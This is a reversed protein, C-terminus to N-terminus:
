RRAAGTSPRVRSGRRGARAIFDLPGRPGSVFGDANLDGKPTDVHAIGFYCTRESCDNGQYNQYCSCSDKSGCTGHGSCANPCEAAAFGLLALLVCTKMM